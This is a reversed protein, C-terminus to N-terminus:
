SSSFRRSRPAPPPRYHTLGVVLPQEIRDLQRPEGGDVALGDGPEPAIASQGSVSAPQPPTGEVVPLPFLHPLPHAAAPPLDPPRGKRRALRRPPPLNEVRAARCGKARRQPATAVRSEACISACVAAAPSTPVQRSSLRPGPGRAPPRPLSGPKRGCPLHQVARVAVLGCRELLIPLRSEGTSRAQTGRRPKGVSRFSSPQELLSVHTPGSLRRLPPISSKNGSRPTAVPHSSGRSLSSALSTTSASAIETGCQSGFFAVARKTGLGPGGAIFRLM